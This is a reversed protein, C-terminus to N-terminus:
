TEDISIETTLVKYIIGAIAALVVLVILKKMLYHYRTGPVENGGEM